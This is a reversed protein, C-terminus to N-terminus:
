ARRSKCWRSSPVPDWLRVTNDSATALLPRGDVGTGFAVATVVGSGPTLTLLSDDRRVRAMVTRYTPRIRQGTPYSGTQAVIAEQLYAADDRTSRGLLPRARRYARAVSRLTPDTPTLLPTLIAPDAVALYDLDATLEAFTDAGAAHAHQALYTRLYPHALEWDPEGDPSTPLSNLLARTIDREVQQRRQQWAERTAPDAHLQDDSPQGRLHAALLDHFPRFVSRQEPGLDEVVYAGANRLLWRVQDDDLLHTGLGTHAALAQAVPVWTQEWPLGPGKAWALAALLAWAIPERRGLRRLDEDFAAGVDVPLQDAWGARGVDIVQQRARVARALLQALLFSEARGKATPRATAKTAIAEAVTAATHDDRGQYPSPVDPEHAAVLLQHAYDALAGPDRYHDTDLDVLLGTDGAPPLLHRRVGIVVRLGPRRALPVLLDTLLRHPDRAEDVADVVVIRPSIEPRDDLDDLLEEPSEAPRGLSEAVAAAAQYPNMGKAQVGFVPLGGFLGAARAVLPSPAAGVALASPHQGDTLLVPLALMASKGSGPSGTVVALGGRNPDRMWGALDEIVRLRGTHGTVYFGATTTDAPAGRLKGVWHQQEVTLGEVGPVRKRNPLFPPIGTSEGGPPFLRARQGASGLTTNIKEVVWDLALAEQSAGVDPDLLAQTLASAFRGQQAWEVSSASALMWVKPSGLGQLSERLAEIGGAGSFCCDLIVLVQPQEDDALVNGHADERLVLDLFETAELATFRLRRPEADATLLYYPKREPKMGHGTYYVVVVPASEAAEQVAERLQELSPNLLYKDAGTPASRYGLGTLAEVVWALADPVGDLDALPEAFDAGHRYTNTGAALLARDRVGPASNM